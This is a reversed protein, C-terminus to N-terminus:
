CSKVIFVLCNIKIGHQNGYKLGTTIFAYVRMAIKDTNKDWRKLLLVPALVALCSTSEAAIDVVVGTAHLPM